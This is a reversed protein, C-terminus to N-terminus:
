KQSRRVVNNKKQLRVILQKTLDLAVQIIIIVQFM